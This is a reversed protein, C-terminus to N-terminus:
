RASFEDVRRVMGINISWFTAQIDRKDRGSSGHWDEDDWVCDFDFIKEWSAEIRRRIRLPLDANWCRAYQWKKAVSAEFAEDDKESDAIYHGNMVFHWLDFDSLVVEDEDIEM